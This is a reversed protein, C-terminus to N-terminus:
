GPKQQQQQKQQDTTEKTPKLTRQSSKDDDDDYAAVAALLLEREDDCEVEPVAVEGVAAFALAAVFGVTVVAGGGDAVTPLRPTYSHPGM